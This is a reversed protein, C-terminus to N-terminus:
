EQQCAKNLIESAPRKGFSQGDLVNLAMKRLIRNDRGLGSAGHGKVPHHRIKGQGPDNIDPFFVGAAGMM